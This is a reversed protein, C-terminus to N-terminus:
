HQFDVPIWCWGLGHPCSYPFSEATAGSCLQGLGQSGLWWVVMHEPHPCLNQFSSKSSYSPIVPRRPKQSADHSRYTGDTNQGEKQGIEEKQSPISVWDRYLWQVKSTILKSQIESASTCFPSCGQRLLSKPSQVNSYISSHTLVNPFQLSPMMTNQLILLVHSQPALPLIIHNPETDRGFSM